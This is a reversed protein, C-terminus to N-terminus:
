KEDICNKETLVWQKDLIVGACVHQRGKEIRSIISWDDAAEGGKVRVSVSDTMSILYQVFM